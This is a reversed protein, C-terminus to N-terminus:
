RRVCLLSLDVCEFHVAIVVFIELVIVYRVSRQENDMGNYSEVLLLLYFKVAVPKMTETRCHLVCRWVLIFLIVIAMVDNQLCEM